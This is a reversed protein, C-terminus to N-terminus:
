VAIPDAALEGVPQRNIITVAGTFAGARIGAVRPSFAFRARSRSRPAAPAVPLEVAPVAACDGGDPAFCGTLRAVTVGEDGGLLFGDGEGEIADNVFIVGSAAISAPAPALRTRFALAIAKPASAYTQEDTTAVVEVTATGRFEGDAAVAAIMGGDVA